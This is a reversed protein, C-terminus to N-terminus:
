LLVYGFMVCCLVVCHAVACCLVICCAVSLAYYLLCCLAVCRVVCFVCCLCMCVCAYVYARMCAYMRARMCVHVSAHMCLCTGGIERVIICVRGCALQCMRVACVDIDATCNLSVLTASPSTLRGFRRRASSSDTRNACVVLKKEDALDQLLGDAPPWGWCGSSPVWPTTSPKPRKTADTRGCACPLASTECTPTRSNPPTWDSNAIRPIGSDPNPAPRASSSVMCTKPVCLLIAETDM